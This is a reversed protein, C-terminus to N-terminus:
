IDDSRTDLCSPCFNMLVDKGEVDAAYPDLDDRVSEDQKGCVECKLHPNEQKDYISVGGQLQQMCKGIRMRADELHRFALTLNALAEGYDIETSPELKKVDRERLTEKLMEVQVSTKERIGDIIAKQIDKICEGEVLIAKRASKCLSEIAVDFPALKSTGTDKSTNSM